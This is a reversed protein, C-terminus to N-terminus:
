EVQFGSLADAGDVSVAGGLEEAEELVGGNGVEAVNRVSLVGEAFFQGFM